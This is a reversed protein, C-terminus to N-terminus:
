SNAVTRKHIMAPIHEWWKNAMNTAWISTLYSTAKCTNNVQIYSASTFLAHVQPRLYVGHRITRFVHWVIEWFHLVYTETWPRCVKFHPSTKQIRWLPAGLATETWFGGFSGGLGGESGVRAQFSPQKHHVRRQRKEGMLGKSCSPLCLCFNDYLLYATGNWTCIFPKLTHLGQIWVCSAHRATQGNGERRGGTRSTKAANIICCTSVCVTCFTSMCTQTRLLRMGDRKHEAQKAERALLMLACTSFCCLARVRCM